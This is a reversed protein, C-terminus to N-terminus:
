IKISPYVVPVTSTTLSPYVQNIVLFKDNENYSILIQGDCKINVGKLKEHLNAFDVEMLYDHPSQLVVLLNTDGLNGGYHEMKKKVFSFIDQTNLKGQYRKLQFVRFGDHSKIIFDADSQGSRFRNLDKLTTITDKNPNFVNHLEFCVESGEEYFNLYIYLSGFVEHDDRSNTSQQSITDTIEEKKEPDTILNNISIKKDNILKIIKTKQDVEFIRSLEQRTFCVILNKNKLKHFNM